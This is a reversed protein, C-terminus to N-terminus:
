VHPRWEFNIDVCETMGHLSGIYIGDWGGVTEHGGAGLQSETVTSKSADISTVTITWEYDGNKLDVETGITSLPMTDIPLWPNDTM